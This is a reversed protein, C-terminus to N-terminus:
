LHRIRKKSFPLTFQFTSGKGKKSMIVIEGGHRKIIAQSIYLGIGLGPFTHEKTDSIRYFRDFIRKQHKKSIGIGFDTVQILAENKTQHLTVIIINAGPSYKMANTLLNLLVQGIRERDGWVTHKISGDLQIKHHDSIQQTNDIIEKVLENADFKELRFSLQNSQIKSVDLLDQILMTLKDIQRIIKELYETVKKDDKKQFQRLLVEAYVKLSTVPTKLEHSAISIFNDRHNVAKELNKQTQQLKTAVIEANNRAMYQLRSLVFFILSVLLGGIFIFTSLNKESELDFQPHDSFVITWIQSGVPITRTMHFRPLYNSEVQKITTDQLINAKQLPSDDYIQYNLLQPLNKNIQIDTFLSDTFFASYIFGIIKQRRVSISEPVLGDKYIPTFLLFGQHKLTGDISWLAIKKSPTTLGLDRAKEMAQLRNSDAGMDRGIIRPLHKNSLTLFRVVYYLPREGQSTITFQSGDESQVSQLYTDKESNPVIQILGISQVGPYNKELRLRNIYADFQQRTIESNAAYLGAVGRLLAIYTQMQSEIGNSTDQVANLFRLNDVDYSVKSVYFTTVITLTLSIIFIIYPIWPRQIRLKIRAMLKRTYKVDTSVSNRLSNTLPM